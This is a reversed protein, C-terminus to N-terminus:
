CRSVGDRARLVGANAHADARNATLHDIRTLGPQDPDTCASWEPPLADRRKADPHLLDVDGLPTAIAVSRWPGASTEESRIFDTAAANRELLQAETAEIDQVLFNVRSIGEPHRELYRRVSSGPYAPENL